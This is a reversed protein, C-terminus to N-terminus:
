GGQPPCLRLEARAPLRLFNPLYGGAPTGSSRRFRRPTNRDPGDWIYPHGAPDHASAVLSPHAGATHGPVLDLLLRVGLMLTQGALRALGQWAATAAAM